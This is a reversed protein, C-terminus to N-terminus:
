KRYRFNREAIWHPGTAPKPNPNLTWYHHDVQRHHVWCLSALNDLDTPGGLSYDTVHHPQTRNPPLDCGPIICGNDRVALAKRQATTALRQARGVAIPLLPSGLLRQLLPDPGSPKTNHSEGAIQPGFGAGANTDDAVDDRKGGGTDTCTIPTIEACCLAFRTVTAAALDGDPYTARQGHDHNNNVPTGPTGPTGTTTIEAQDPSMTLTVAVPLGGLTPTQGAVASSVILETLADAKRQGATLLDSQTRQKEAIAAITDQFAQGELKPLQGQFLVSDGLNSFTLSRRQYASKEDEDISDPRILDLVRATLRRVQQYTLDGLHDLLITM